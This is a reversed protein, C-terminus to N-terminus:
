GYVLIGPQEHRLAEMPNVCAARRAPLYAALLSVAIIVASGVIMPAPNDVPVGAIVSEAVSRGLLAMPVGIVIGACVMGFADRVVMRTADGSTAGLAMRVGIESTRHTVTYALLGYLGIAALLLGLGGFLGSLLAMLQEPVITADMQDAMTTVKTVLVGQLVHDVARRVDGTVISPDVTTRLILNRGHSRPMYITRPPTESLDYYKADGVLGVIEYPTNDADFTFHEGIAPRDGFYYRAMSENVIAV